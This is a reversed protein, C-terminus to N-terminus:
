KKQIDPNCFFSVTLNLLEFGALHNILSRVLLFSCIVIVVYNNKQGVELESLVLRGQFGEVLGSSSRTQLHRIYLNKLSKMYVCHKVQDRAICHQVWPDVKVRLLCENNM